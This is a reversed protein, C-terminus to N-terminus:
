SNPLTTGHEVAEIGHALDAVVETVADAVVHIIEQSPIVWVVLKELSMFRPIDIVYCKGPWGFGVLWQDSQHIESIVTFCRKRLMAPWPTSHSIIGPSM